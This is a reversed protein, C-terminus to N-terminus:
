SNQDPKILKRICHNTQDVLYINGHSDLAIGTIHGLLAEEGVADKFGRVGSGAITEVLRSTKIMRIRFNKADAIYLNGESDSTVATPLRFKATSFVGDEYGYISGAVIEVVGGNNIQRILHNEEDALYITWNAAMFIGLPHNFRSDQPLGNVIGPVGQGAFTSVQQDTTIKRIVHNSYDSAYIYNFQDVAIGRIDSFLANEKAGDVYGINDPDGAIHSVWGNADVNFDVKRITGKEAVLLNGELDFTLSGPSQFRADALNGNVMGSQGNGTLTIVQGEPTIKRISHNGADAVYLNDDSDFTLGMPNHFSANSGIGDAYGPEGNGALTTVEYATNKPAFENIIDKCGFICLLWTILLSSIFPTTKHFGM